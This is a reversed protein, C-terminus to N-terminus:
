LEEKTDTQETLDSVNTAESRSSKAAKCTHKKYVAFTSGKRMKISSERLM